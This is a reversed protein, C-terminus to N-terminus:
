PKLGQGARVMIYNDVEQRSSIVWVNINYDRLRAHERLQGKRPKARPRKLEVFEVVGRWVVLRDAAHRRGPTLLKRHLGGAKAVQTTFYKEVSSERVQKM